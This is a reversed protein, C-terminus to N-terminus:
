WLSYWKPKSHILVTADFSIKKDPILLWERQTVPKINRRKCIVYSLEDTFRLFSKTLGGPTMVIVNDGFGAAIEPDDTFSRPEDCEIAVVEGQKVNAAIGSKNQTPNQFRYGRYLKTRPDRHPQLRNVLDRVKALAPGLEYNPVLVWHDLITMLNEHKEYEAVIQQNLKSVDIPKELLAM